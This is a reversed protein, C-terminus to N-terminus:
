SQTDCPKPPRNSAEHSFAISGAVLLIGLSAALQPLVEPEIPLGLWTLSPILQPVGLAALWLTAVAAPGRGVCVVLALAGLAGLKAPAIIFLAWTMPFSAAALSVSAVALLAAVSGGVLAADELVQVQPRSARRLVTTGALLWMTHSAILLALIQIWAPALAGGDDQIPSSFRVFALGPGMGVAMAGWILGLPSRTLRAGLLRTTGVFSM